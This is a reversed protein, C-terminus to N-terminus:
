SAGRIFERVARVQSNRMAGVDGLLSAAFTEAWWENPNLVAYGTAARTPDRLVERHMRDAFERYGRLSHALVHGFEHTLVHRPEAMGDHWDAMGPEGSIRGAASARVLHGLDRGFWFLNLHIAGSSEYALSEDGTHRFTRVARLRAAPFTAALRDYTGRVPADYSPHLGDLAYDTM